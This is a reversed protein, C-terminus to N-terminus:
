KCHCQLGMDKAGKATSERTNELTGVFGSITPSVVRRCLHNAQKCGLYRAGGRGRRRQSAWPLTSLAQHGRPTVKKDLSHRQRQNGLLLLTTLLLGECYSFVAFTRSWLCNLRKFVSTIQLDTVGRAPIGPPLTYSRYLMSRLTLFLSSGPNKM